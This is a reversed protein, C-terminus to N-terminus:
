DRKTSKAKLEKEETKIEESKKKIETTKTEMRGTFKPFRLDENKSVREGDVYRDARNGVVKYTFPVNSQGNQLEKVEFGEGTKNTVYVGKCDGELQVLVRLPHKENVTVNKAFIPDLKIYAKGNVLQGQGYDEFLIEPAEAAFMIVEEGQTDEVITSVSGDGIIKYETGGQISAVQSDLNLTPSISASFYGATVHTATLSRTKGYVGVASGTFAGGSGDVISNYNLLNNGLGIVGNGDTAFSHGALGDVESLGYVGFDNTSEGLVGIENLSIGLVGAQGNTTQGWIGIDAVSSGFVGTNNTSQGRVGTENVSSGFVGAIGTLTQGYVGDGSESIGVVGDGSDSQGRVGEGSVADGIIARDADAAISNLVTNTFPTTSNVVVSGGSLVRLRETNNTRIALSQNDITGLFNNNVNTGNNGEILWATEDTWTGPEGQPGQVGDDGAPGQPGQPGQDGQPGQAGDAGAPGAPGQDGQPGQAGDAGDAGAPGQPGQPGQAGDAGAPGAPGQPGQPGQA